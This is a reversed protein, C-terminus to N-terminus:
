VVIDDAADDASPMPQFTLSVPVEPRPRVGAAQLFDWPTPHGRSATPTTSGNELRLVGRPCVASCVGCGCSARVINEGCVYARVDIGM